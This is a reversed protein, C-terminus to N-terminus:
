TTHSGDFCYGRGGEYVVICAVAAGQVAIDSQAGGDRIDIRGGLAEVCLVDHAAYAKVVRGNVSHGEGDIVLQFFTRPFM